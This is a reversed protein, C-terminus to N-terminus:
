KKKKPNKKKPPNYIKKGYYDDYQACSGKHVKTANHANSDVLQMTCKGSAPNFDDVHHWTYGEPPDSGFESLGAEKNAVRFDSTRNGTMKIEVINRKDYKVPYLYKTGKFDPGGNNTTGIGPYGKEAAREAPTMKVKGENTIGNDMIEKQKAIRDTISMTSKSGSSTAAILNQQKVVDIEKEVEEVTSSVETSPRSTQGICEIDKGRFQRVYLTFTAVGSYNSYNESYDVVFAKSFCVKRVLQNDKTYEVAIEKYCDSNTAPLLAWKYLLATGEDTDIRGTIIMSNKPDTRMDYHNPTDVTFTVHEICKELVAGQITVKYSM